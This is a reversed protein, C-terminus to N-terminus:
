VLIFLVIGLLMLVTCIVSLVLLIDVYGNGSTVKNNEKELLYEKNIANERIKFYDYVQSNIKDIESSDLNKVYDYNYNIMEYALANLLHKEKPLIIKVNEKMEIRFYRDIKLIDKAHLYNFSVRLPNTAYPTYLLDYFERVEDNTIYFNLKKKIFMDILEKQIIIFYPNRKRFKDNNNVNEFEYFLELNSLFVEVDMKSYGFKCLNEKLLDEDGMVKPNIIDLESYISVLMRIVVVLFSNYMVGKVNDNSDLYCDCAKTFANNIFVKDM